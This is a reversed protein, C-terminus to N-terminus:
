DPQLGIRLTPDGFLLFTKLVDSSGPNEQLVRRQARLLIDGLIGNPDSFMEEALSYSLYSQDEPLTLSTPALVAIAGVKPQLLFAESLSEEKPHTFLGTLCTLNIILPLYDANSLSSVDQSSFLRDKGWMNISGHGFYFALGIGKNLMQEIQHNVDVEGPEPAMLEPQYNGPIVDLFNKADTVFASDASDAIAMIRRKWFDGEVQQDSSQEYAIVKDVYNTVQEPTRAPLRGVSIQIMEQTIKASEDWSAAGPISFGFDSATEGGHLTNVFFTPVRNADDGVQYGKPDFSADGVLFLYKPPDRWNKQTDELFNRIAQPDPFGDSYQDYITEIPVALTQFGQNQRMELLPQLPVLLDSPGVALLDAANQKDFLEIPPSVKESKELENYGSPGVIWYAHDPQSLFDSGPNIKSAALVPRDPESVDYVDVLGSFGVLDLRGGPSVLSILDNNAELVRPYDIEIWDLYVVDALVGTDGPMKLNLQNNGPTLVGTPIKAEILKRGKGDWTEDALLQGNLYLALHHDPNESAETSAWLMLSLRGEGPVLNNLDFDIIKEQPAPMMMWLWREGSEVFPNYVLNEELHLSTIFTRIASGPNRNESSKQTPANGQQDVVITEKGPTQDTVGLWYINYPSYKNDTSQGYFRINGSRKDIWYPIGAKRNSLIFNANDPDDINELIPRYQNPSIEYFGDHDVYMKLFIPKNEVGRTLSTTHSFFPRKSGAIALIAGLLVVLILPLIIRSKGTLHIGWNDM